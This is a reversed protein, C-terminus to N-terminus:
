FRYPDVTQSGGFQTEQRKPDKGDVLEVGPVSYTGEKGSQDRSVLRLFCM